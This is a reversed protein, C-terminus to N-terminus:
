ESKMGTAWSVGGLVAYPQFPVQGKILNVIIGVFWIASCLVWQFFMGDGTEYKKVPM